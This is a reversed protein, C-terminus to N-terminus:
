NDNVSQGVAWRIAKPSTTDTQSATEPLPTSGLNFGLTSGDISAIGLATSTTDPQDLAVRSGPDQIRNWPGFEDDGMAARMAAADRSSIRWEDWNFHWAYGSEPGAVGSAFGWPANGRGDGYDVLPAITAGAGTYTTGKVGWAYMQEADWKNCPVVTLSM